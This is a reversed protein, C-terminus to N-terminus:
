QYVPGTTWGTVPKNTTWGSVGATSSTWSGTGAAVAWGASIPGVTISINRETGAIHAVATATITLTGAAGTLVSALVAGTLALQGGAAAPVTTGATGTLTIGAAAAATAGAAAQGTISIAGAVTGGSLAAATGTLTITATAAAPTGAAASGTLALTGAAAAPAQVAVSGALSLTGSAQAPAAGTGAGALTLSGNISQQSAATGAGTLSVQGSVAAPAEGAGSGTVTLSGAAAAATAPTTTDVYAFQSRSGEHYLGVGGDTMVIEGATGWAPTGGSGPGDTFDARLTGDIWVQIRAGTQQVEVDYFTGVTFPTSDTWLFRQGGPLTTSQDVKGLEFGNTKLAVYYFRNVGPTPHSVNWCFWAVEFPQPSANLQVLTRARTFFHVDGSFPESEVLTSTTSELQLVRGEGTVDVTQVVGSTGLFDVTWPGHTSGEAWPTATPYTDFEETLSTLPAFGSATGTIALSGAAAATAGSPTFEVDVFYDTGGASTTPFTLSTGSHFLGNHQSTSDAYAHLPANDIGASLGGPTDVYGSTAGTEYGVVYTAGATISVPTGLVASIWGQPDSSTQRRTTSALLTGSADWLGLSITRNNFSTSTGKYYNLATIQGAVDSHFAMGLTYQSSDAENLQTPIQSTHIAPM